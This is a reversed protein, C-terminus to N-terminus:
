TAAKNRKAAVKADFEAKASAKAQKKQEAAAKRAMQGDAAAKADAEELARKEDEQQAVGAREEDQLQNWVAQAARAVREKEAIEKKIKYMLKRKDVAEDILLKLATKVEGMDLTGGGDADLECFSGALSHSVAVAVVPSSM